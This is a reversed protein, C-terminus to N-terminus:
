RVCAPALDGLSLMIGCQASTLGFETAATTCTQAYVQLVHAATYIRGDQGAVSSQLSMGSILALTNLAGELVSEPLSHWLARLRLGLAGTILDYRRAGEATPILSFARRDNRDRVRAVLGIRELRSCRAAVLDAPLCLEGPLLRLPAGAPVLLAHSLVLYDALDVDAVERVERDLARYVAFGGAFVTPRILQESEM